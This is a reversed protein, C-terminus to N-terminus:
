PISSQPETGQLLLSPLKEKGDHHGSQSQLGGLRLHTGPTKGWPLKTQAHLQGSVEM